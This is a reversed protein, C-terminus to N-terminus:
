ICLVSGLDLKAVLTAAAILVAFEFILGTGVEVSVPPELMGGLPAIAPITTLEVTVPMTRIKIMILDILLTSLWSNSSFSSITIRFGERFLFFIPIM